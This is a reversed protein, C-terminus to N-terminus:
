IHLLKHIWYKINNWDLYIFLVYVLNKIKNQPNRQPSIRQLFLAITEGSQPIKFNHQRIRFLIHVSSFNLKKQQPLANFPPPQWCYQVILTLYPDTGQANKLSTTTIFQTSTGFDLLLSIIETFVRLVRTQSWVIVQARKRRAM